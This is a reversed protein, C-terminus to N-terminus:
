KEEYFNNIIEEAQLASGIFLEQFCIVVILIIMIGVCVNHIKMVGVIFDM